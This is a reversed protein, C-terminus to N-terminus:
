KIKIVKQVSSVNGARVEVFYVGAPWGETNISYVTIGKTIRGYVVERGSIDYVRLDVKHSGLNQNMRINLFRTVPNPSLAFRVGTTVGKVADEGIGPGTYRCIWVSSVAGMVAYNSFMVEDRGDNNVDGASAVTWGIQPDISDGQLYADVITDLPFDGLWAYGTGYGGNDGPAGSLIESSARSTLQGASSTWAGLFSSDTVGTVSWDVLTDMSSNGELLYEKGNNISMYGNPWLETGTILRAYGTDNQLIDVNFWGLFHNVGEGHLWCDPITDMPNGGFFVYVKGAGSYAESNEDAGVVLDEYGDGNLDGGSGVSKGFAEVGHGNIIIDPITDLLTGGYYIYVRGHLDGYNYSGVILDQYSDGNLDGCAVAMGFEEGVVRGSMIMDPLSDMAPEGFYVQAIGRGGNGYTQGIIIDPISDGTLDGHCVQCGEGAEGNLILDPLTDMPTGGFYIYGKVAWSDYQVLYVIDDYGDQNIDGASSLSYGFSLISDPNWNSKKFIVELNYAQQASLIGIFIFILFAISRISLKGLATTLKYISQSYLYLKNM